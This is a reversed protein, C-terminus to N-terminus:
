RTSARRIHDLALRAQEAAEENSGNAVQQLTEVNLTCERLIRVIGARSSAGDPKTALERAVETRMSWTYANWALQYVAATSLLAISAIATFRAIRPWRRRDPIELHDM